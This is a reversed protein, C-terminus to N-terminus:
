EDFLGEFDYGYQQCIEVNLRDLNLDKKGGILRVIENGARRRLGNISHTLPLLHNQEGGGQRVKTENQWILENALMSLQIARVLKGNIKLKNLSRMIQRAEKEYAEKKEPNNCGLKISKLTVIGLLDILFAVDPKWNEM